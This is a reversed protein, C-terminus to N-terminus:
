LAIRLYKTGLDIVQSDDNFLAIVGSPNLFGIVSFILAVFIVSILGIGLIRKINKFDKKGWFQSIFVSCGACLGILFMNFFFFYQNAIGVAAIEVEGLKGVMVTDIMNLFSSIFNQLMVPVAIILMRRFFLKDGFLGNINQVLSAMHEEM